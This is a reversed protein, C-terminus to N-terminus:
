KKSRLFDTSPIDLKVESDKFKHKLQKVGNENLILDILNHYLCIINDKGLQYYIDNDSPSIIRLIDLLGKLSEKIKDFSIVAKETSSIISNNIM